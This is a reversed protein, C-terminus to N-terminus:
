HRNSAPKKVLEQHFRHEKKSSAHGDNFNKEAFSKLTTTKGVQRAGLLILAKRNKSQQWDKLNEQTKRKM